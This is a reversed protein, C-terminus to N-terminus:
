FHQLSRCQKSINRGEGGEVTFGSINVYDATIEFVDDDPDKAQVITSDSGNESQITLSKDVEINEIYTGDRVVITDGPSAANVAAQITAYDDPVYIVLRIYTCAKSKCNNTENIETVDKQYDACVEIKDEPPTFTWNYTFNETREAGAGLPAVYESVIFVEDVSLSTYSAGANAEGQNKIKYFITCGSWWIDTIVLDPPGRSITFHETFELEGNHYLDIHWEGLNAELPIKRAHLWRSSPVVNSPIADSSEDYLNGDPDYWREIFTDEPNVIAEYWFIVRFDTTYFQTTRNLQFDKEIDLSFPNTRSMGHDIITASAIGVNYGADELVYITASSSNRDSESIDGASPMAACSGVMAFLILIALIKWISKDGM